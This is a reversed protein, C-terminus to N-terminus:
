PTKNKKERLPNQNKNKRLFEELNESSLM